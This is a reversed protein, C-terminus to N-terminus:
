ANPLSGTLVVRPRSAVLSMVVRAEARDAAPVVFVYTGTATAGPELSGMVPRAPDTTVQGASVGDADTLDISFTSLDVAASSTNTLEVVLQVGPGSTEGPLEATADIATVSGLRVDVGDALAAAADLPYTQSEPLEADGPTPDSLAPVGTTTTADEAAAPTADVADAATTTTSEAGSDDSSCSALVPSLVLLAALPAAARRVSRVAAANKATTGM